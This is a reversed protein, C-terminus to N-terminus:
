ALMDRTAPRPTPATGSSFSVRGVKFGRDLIRARARFCFHGLIEKEHNKLGM